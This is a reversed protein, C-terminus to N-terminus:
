PNTWLNWLGLHSSWLPKRQPWFATTRERLNGPLPLSEPGEKENWVKLETYSRHRPDIMYGNSRMRVGMLGQGKQFKALQRCRLAWLYSSFVSTTWLWYAGERTKYRQSPHHPRAQSLWSIAAYYLTLSHPSQTRLWSLVTDRPSMSSVERLWM